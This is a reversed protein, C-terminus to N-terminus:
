PKGMRPRSIRGEPYVSAEIGDWLNCWGVFLREKKVKRGVNEERMGVNILLYEVM